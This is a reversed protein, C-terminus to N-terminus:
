NDTIAVHDCNTPLRSWVNTGDIAVSAVENEDVDEVCKNEKTELNTALTLCTFGWADAAKTQLFFLLM